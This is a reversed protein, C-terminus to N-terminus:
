KNSLWWQWRVQLKNDVTSYCLPNLVEPLCIQMCASACICVCASGSVCVYVHTYTHNRSIPLRIIVVPPPQQMGTQDVPNRPGNAPAVRTMIAGHLRKEVLCLPYLSSCPLDLFDLSPPRSIPTSLPRSLDLSTLLSLDLSLRSQVQEELHNM